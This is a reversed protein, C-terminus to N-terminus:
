DKNETGRGGRPWGRRRFGRWHPWARPRRSPRKLPSQLHAWSQDGSGDNQVSRISGIVSAGDDSALQTAYLIKAGDPASSVFAASDLVPTPTGCGAIPCRAVGSGPLEVYVFGDQVAIADYADQGEFVPTTPNTGGGDPSRDCAFLLAFAALLIPRNM